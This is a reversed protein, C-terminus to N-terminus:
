HGHGHGTGPPTAGSGSGAGSGSHGADDTGGAVPSQHETEGGPHNDHGSPSAANGQSHDNKRRQGSVWKGFDKTKDGDERLKKAEASVTQGFNSKKAKKTKGGADKSKDTDKGDDKDVDKGADAVKSPGKAKKKDVEANQGAGLQQDFKATDESTAPALDDARTIPAFMFMLVLSQIFMKKM